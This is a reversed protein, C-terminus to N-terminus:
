KVFAFYAHMGRIQTSEWYVKVQEYGCKTLRDYMHEPTEKYSEALMLTWGNKIMRKQQENGCYNVKM